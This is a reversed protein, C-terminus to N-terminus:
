AFAGRRRRVDRSRQERESETFFSGMEQHDRKIQKVWTANPEYHNMFEIPEIVDELKQDYMGLTTFVTCLTKAVHGDKLGFVMHLGWKNQQDNLDTGSWFASMEPHTHISGITAFGPAPPEGNDRFLVAAGAGSQEPCKVAWKKDRANYYLVYATETKPFEHITGLIQAMLTNPIKAGIWKAGAVIPPTKQMAAARLQDITKCEEYGELCPSDIKVLVRDYGVYFDESYNNM